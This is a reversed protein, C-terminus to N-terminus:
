KKPRSELTEKWNKVVTQIREAGDSVWMSAPIAVPKNEFWAWSGSADQALYNAWDPANKWDPKNDLKWGFDEPTIRRCQLWGTGYDSCYINDVKVAFKRVAGRSHFLEETKDKDNWFVCWDGPQPEDQKQLKVLEDIKARAEAAIQDIQEQITM